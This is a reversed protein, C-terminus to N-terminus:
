GRTAYAVILTLLTGVVALALVALGSACVQSLEFSWGFDWLHRISRQRPSTPKATHRRTKPTRL